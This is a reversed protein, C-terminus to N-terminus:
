EYQTELDVIVQSNTVTEGARQNRTLVKLFRTSKESSFPDVEVDVVKEPGQGRMDPTEGASNLIETNPSLIFKDQGALSAPSKIKNSIQASSQHYGFEINPASLFRRFPNPLGPQQPALIFTPVTIKFNYRIIREENSYESFNDATNLPSKIYAVLDYGEATKMQFEHGQGDFKSMMAEILQNMQQMYQTWFVVDYQVTVFTPYPATIIEFINNGLENRLYDGKSDILYSMNGGNRRSAVTGPKAKNGPSIDSAGFNGRSAVNDQHKLRLKNILKQYHRDEKGIRKRVIYSQQDRHAIATGYGDQGPSHDISERHISIIPLILANNRDRIPQRRRTLAFREGAAFVVPVNSAVKNVNVQFSLKKDFLNFVARDTQEIGMPPISFSEPVNNGEYATDIKSM